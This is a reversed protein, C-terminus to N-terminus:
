GFYAERLLRGERKVYDEMARNFAITGPALPRDLDDYFMHTGDGMGRSVGTLLDEIQFDSSTEYVRIQEDENEWVGPHGRDARFHPWCTQCLGDKSAPFVMCHGCERYDHGIRRALRQAEDLIERRDDDDTAEQYRRELARFADDSPNESTGKRGECVGSQLINGAEIAAEETLRWLGANEETIYGHEYMGHKFPIQFREPSRKWTKCRGSIRARLPTKDANRLNIHYVTGTISCANERTIRTPKVRERMRAVREAALSDGEAARRELERLEEDSNSRAKTLKEIRDGVAWARDREERLRVSEPSPELDEHDLCHRCYPHDRDGRGPHVTATGGCYACLWAYERSLDNGIEYALEKYRAALEAEGARFLIAALREIADLDRQAARRELRLIEEDM